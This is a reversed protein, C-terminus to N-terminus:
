RGEGRKKKMAQKEHSTPRRRDSESAMTERLRGEMTDNSSAQTMATAQEDGLGGFGVVGAAPVPPPLPPELPPSNSPPLPPEVGPVLPEPPPPVPPEEMPPVPPLMASAPWGASPPEVGASPPPPAGSPGGGAPM